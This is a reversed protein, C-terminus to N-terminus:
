FILEKYNYSVAMSSVAEASIFTAMLSLIAVSWWEACTMVILPCSVSLQMKLDSKNLITTLSNRPIPSIAYETM